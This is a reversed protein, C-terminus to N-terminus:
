SPPPPPKIANLRYAHVSDTLGKLRMDPLSTVDGRDGLRTRTTEDILIEMSAAQQCLRSALNVRDGLVTYSVRDRSGMCGAIVSGTTIAIGVHIKHTSTRNLEDRAALLQLACQAAHIADDGYNKPAGFLAMLMDGVYKDVVGHHQYVVPTLATMHENLLAVIQQPPMAETLTSFGRIDCFLVSVERTEGGLADPSQLLQEAVERDAMLNLLHHYKEKQALGEAMANFSEALQGFEDRERVPVRVNFNSKRIEATGALLQRIPISLNHAILLSLLLAGALTLTGFALIHNRLDAEAEHASKWSYLGIKYAVPLTSDQNMKAYFVRHPVGAVTIMFDPRADDPRKALEAPLLRTLETRASEDNITRTHIRDNLWIGNSIDSVDSLTQEGRDFYPFAIAFLALLQQSEPDLVPTVVVELLRKRGKEFEVAFYGVQQEKLARLTDLIATLQKQFSHRAESRLYPKWLPSTPELPKGDADLFILFAAERTRPPLAPTPTPRTNKTVPATAKAAPAPTAKTLDPAPRAAPTGSVPPTTPASAKAAPSKAAPAKTTPPPAKTAAPPQTKGAALARQAALAAAAAADEPGRELEGGLVKRLEGRAQRYLQEGDGAQIAIVLPGSEALDRARRKLESLRTEQERPIYRIQAQINDDFLGEYAQQMKRQTVLLATASGIAVLAVMSLQLKNRFSLQPM